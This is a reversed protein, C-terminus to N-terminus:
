RPPGAKRREKRAFLWAGLSLLGYLCVIAVMQAWKHTFEYYLILVGGISLGTIALSTLWVSSHTKARIKHNAVAMLLSVLLFTISGFELILQLGGAVILLSATIAMVIIANRPINRKRRSLWQPFYGDAAIVALQRSSGFVTGSIASSTALLAGLIVIDTGIKGLIKGAGAALAYEQNKVIEEPPIAFLAGLAIVVYILIAMGVATYIARPINKDPNKMEGVANIVLQFGEYAVFTISAVIL